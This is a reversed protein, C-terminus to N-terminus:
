NLNSKKRTLLEGLSAGGAGIAEAIISVVRYLAVTGLMLGPSFTKGLITLMTAEFVGMGGPAGPVILGLLWALSFAGMLLPINSIEINTLALMTLLFGIGRLAVFGLEGLLPILPYREIKTVTSELLKAKKNKAKLRSLYQIVQNLIRPHIGIAIAILGAIQGIALYSTPMGRNPITILAIALAASAMLLPELLVSVTAAELSIGISKAALIRGYFHWVNGPLYKAINTKLYTSVSWSISVPQNLERLISNWVWGSWIHALLTFLLSFALIAWGTSGIRLAVVERVHDKLTKALFFLTAGLIFWRLYPKFVSVIPAIAAAIKSNKM